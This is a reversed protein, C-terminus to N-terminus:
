VMICYASSNMQIKKMHSDQQELMMKKFTQVERRIESAAKIMTQIEM